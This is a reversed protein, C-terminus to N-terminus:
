SASHRCACGRRENALDVANAEGHGIKVGADREVAVLEAVLQVSAGGGGCAEADGFAVGLDDELGFAQADFDVEKDIGRVDGRLAEHLSAAAQERGHEVDLDTAAGDNDIGPVVDEHQKIHAFSGRTM